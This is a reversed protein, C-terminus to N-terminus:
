KNQKPFYIAKSIIELSCAKHISCYNQCEEAIKRNEYGLGCIECIFIEKGNIEIKKVM